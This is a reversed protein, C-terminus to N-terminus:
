RIAFDLNIRISGDQLEFAATRPKLSVPITGASSTAVRLNIPLVPISFSYDPTPLTIAPSQWRPLGTLDFTLSYSVSAVKLRIQSTAADYEISTSVNVDVPARPNFSGYKATLTGNLTIGDRKLSLRVGSLTWSLDEEFLTKSCRLQIDLEDCPAPITAKVKEVKDSKDGLGALKNLASESIVFSIQQARAAQPLLALSMILLLTRLRM